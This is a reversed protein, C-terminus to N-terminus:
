VSFTTAAGTSLKDTALWAEALQDRWMKENAAAEDFMELRGFAISAAKFLMIYDIAGPLLTVDSSASLLAVRRYHLLDIIDNQRYLIDSASKNYKLRATIRTNTTDVSSILTFEDTGSVSDIWAEELSSLGSVTSLEIIVANDATEANSLTYATSAASPIPSVIIDNQIPDIAYSRRSRRLFELETEELKNGDLRITRAKRFNSPLTYRDLNAVKVIGSRTLLSPWDYAYATAQYAENIDELQATSDVYADGANISMVLELRDRLESLQKIGAPAAM